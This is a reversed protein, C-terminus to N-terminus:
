GPLLAGIRELARAQEHDDKYNRFGFALSERTSRGASDFQGGNVRRAVALWAIKDARGQAAIATFAPRRHELPDTSDPPDPPALAAPASRASCQIGSDKYACLTNNGCVRLVNEWSTSHLKEKNRMNRLGEFDPNNHHTPTFLDSFNM